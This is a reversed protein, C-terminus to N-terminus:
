DVASESDLVVPMDVVDPDDLLELACPPEDPVDLLVDYLELVVEPVVVVIEEVPLATRIGSSIRRM